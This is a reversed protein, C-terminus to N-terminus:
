RLLTLSLETKVDVGNLHRLARITGIDPLGLDADRCLVVLRDALLTISDPEYNAQAASAWEFM